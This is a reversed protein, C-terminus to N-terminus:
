QLTFCNPRKRNSLFACKIAIKKKANSREEKVVFWWWYLLYRQINKMANNYATFTMGNFHFFNKTLSLLM